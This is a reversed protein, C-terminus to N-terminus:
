GMVRLDRTADNLRRGGSTTCVVTDEIRIGFQGPFYVGPEDSFVMGEELPLTNGEVLYPEEHLSLGLGHGTRHIFADGYGAATLVGRAARDIDQCAAGPRVADFAAQNAAVVAEYARVFEPSPEGVHATRTVDSNYGELTGGWDCVVGDGPGIARDTATQHPSAGNPGSGVNCFVPDLGRAALLGMLRDRVEWETLGTIATTLFEEWSEDTRRAAEALLVIEREDKIMRLPRLLQGGEAWHARPMAQQLRITFVSWLEDGAAITGLAAPGAVAAAKAVPDETEEWPVIEMLDRQEHLLPAELGPVVYHPVGDRPLVLVSLRESEHGAYGILYQLDASAGIILLDIGQRAMEAQSRRLRDAYPFAAVPFDQFGTETHPM